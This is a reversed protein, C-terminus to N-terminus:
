TVKGSVQLAAITEVLRDVPTPSGLKAFAPALYAAMGRRRCGPCRLRRAVEATLGREGWARLAADRTTATPRRCRVCVFMLGRAPPVDGFRAPAPVLDVNRAGM